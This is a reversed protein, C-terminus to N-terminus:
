GSGDAWNLLIEICVWVFKFLPLLLPHTYSIFMWKSWGLQRSSVSVASLQRSFARELRNLQGAPQATPELHGAKLLPWGHQPPKQHCLQRQMEGRFTVGWGCVKWCAQYFRNTWWGPSQHHGVKPRNTGQRLRPNTQTEVPITDVVARLGRSWMGGVRGVCLVHNSTSDQLLILSSCGSNGSLVRLISRM